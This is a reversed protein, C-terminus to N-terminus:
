HKVWILKSTDYGRRQAENLIASKDTESLKPSRTLIWLYDDSGSGVLVYQYDEDLLM